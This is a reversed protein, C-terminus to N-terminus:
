KTKKSHTSPSMDLANENMSADKILYDLIPINMLEKVKIQFIHKIQSYPRETPDKPDFEM